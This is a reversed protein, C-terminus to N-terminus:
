RPLKLLNASLATGCVIIAGCFVTWMSLAENLLLTRYIVAFVPVVFTVTLSRAPGINEILRFYLVYAVGTCLVGVALLDLWATTGPM